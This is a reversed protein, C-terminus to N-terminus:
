PTRAIYTSVMFFEFTQVLPNFFNYFTFSLILISPYIERFLHLLNSCTKFREFIEAIENISLDILLLRFEEVVIEM